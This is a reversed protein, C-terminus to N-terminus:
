SLSIEVMRIPLLMTLIMTRRDACKQENPKVAVDARRNRRDDYRDNNQNKTLDGGLTNCLVRRFAKGHETRGRDPEPYPASAMSNERKGTSFSAERKKLVFSSAFIDWSSNSRKICSTSCSPPMSSFSPSSSRLARSNRSRVAASIKVWRISKSATSMPSLM